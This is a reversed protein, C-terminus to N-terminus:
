DVYELDKKLFETLELLQMQTHIYNAKIWDLFFSRHRAEYLRSDTKIITVLEKCSKNTIDLKNRM